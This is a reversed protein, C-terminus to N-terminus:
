PSKIRPTSGGLRKRVPVSPSHPARPHNQNTHHRATPSFSPAKATVPPASPQWRSLIPTVLSIDTDSLRLSPLARCSTKTMLQRARNVPSAVASAPLRTRLDRHHDYARRLLSLHEVRRARRRARRRHRRQRPEVLSPRAHWPVPPGIRHQQHSQRQGLLWLSPHPSVRRAACSAPLPPHVRRRGADDAQLPRGHHAAILTLVRM